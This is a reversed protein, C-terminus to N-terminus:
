YIITIYAFTEYLDFIFLFKGIIFSTTPSVLFNDWLKKWGIYKLIKAKEHIVFVASSGDKPKESDGKNMICGIQSKRRTTSSAKVFPTYHDNNNTSASATNGM